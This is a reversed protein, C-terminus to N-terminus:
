RAPTRSGRTSSAAASTGRAAYTGLSRARSAWRSRAIRIPPPCNVLWGENIATISLREAQTALLANQLHAGTEAILGGQEGPQRPLHPADLPDRLERRRGRRVERLLADLVRGDHDAVPALAQRVGRREVRDHHGGRM